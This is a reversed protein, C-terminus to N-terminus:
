YSSILNDHVQFDISEPISNDENDVGQDLFSSGAICGFRPLFFSSLSVGGWGWIMNVASFIDSQDM